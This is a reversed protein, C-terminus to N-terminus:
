AIKYNALYSALVLLAFAGWFFKAKFASFRKLVVHGFMGIVLWIGFKAKLWLPWGAGHTIGIKAILGFGSVLILVLAVGTGIVEFKMKENKRVASMYLGFFLVISVVHFIKYFAYSM